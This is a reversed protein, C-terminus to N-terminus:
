DMTRHPYDQECQKYGALYAEKLANKIHEKRLDHDVSEAPNALRQAIDDANKMFIQLDYDYPM